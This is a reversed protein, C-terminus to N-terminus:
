KASKFRSANHNHQIMRCFSALLRLISGIHEVTNVRLDHLIVEDTSPKYEITFAFCQALRFVRQRLGHKIWSHPMLRILEHNTKSIVLM